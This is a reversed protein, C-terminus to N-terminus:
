FHYVVSGEQIQIDKNQELWNIIRDVEDELNQGLNNHLIYNRLMSLDSPRNGSRILKRVTEEAKQEIFQEDSTAHSATQQDPITLRESYGNLEKAVGAVAVHASVVEPETEPLEDMDEGAKRKVRLCSRGELNIFSILSDFDHDNSVIGFEIDAPVKQHLKGMLFAIHFHMRSEQAQDIMIWRLNKGMRQVQQVLALPVSTESAPIFVFVKSCVKELKKFKIHKLNEFDIFIYRRSQTNM